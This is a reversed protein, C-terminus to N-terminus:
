PPLEERTGVRGALLGSHLLEESVLEAVSPNDSNAIRVHAFYFRRLNLVQKSGSEDPNGFVRPQSTEASAADWGSCGIASTNVDCIAPKEFYLSAFAYTCHVLPCAALSSSASSRVWHNVSM